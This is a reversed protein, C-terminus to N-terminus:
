THDAHDVAPQITADPNADPKVFVTGGGPERLFWDVRTVSRRSPAADEGSMHASM